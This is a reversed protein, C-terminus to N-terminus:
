QQAIRITLSQHASTNQREDFEAVLQNAVCMPFM